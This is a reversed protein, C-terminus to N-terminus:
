EALLNQTELKLFQNFFAVFTDEDFVIKYAGNEEKVTFGGSETGDVELSVGESLVQHKTQETVAQLRRHLEESVLIQWSGSGNQTLASATAKLIEAMVETQQLSEQVPQRIAKEVLMDHLEKKIQNATKRASMRIESLVKKRYTEMEEKTTRILEEREATAQSRIEEAKIKAQELIRDSEYQAKEIGEHYIKETLIKLKESM